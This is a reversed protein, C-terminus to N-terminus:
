DQGDVARRVNGRAETLRQKAEASGLGTKLSVLAVPVNDGASRLARQATGRDVNASKMLIGIGREQLKENKLNVNVMLNGYVYGLRTMAGTSIMNCIMKQATGAKMRSSGSVVEPGVEVAIELDAVKGMKSEKNCVIAGTMAGRTKAYELAAITYPTRGSASLGIIVDKRTPRRRAIDSAGQERSDENFEAAAGLAKPGGAM